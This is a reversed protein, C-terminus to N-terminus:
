GAPVVDTVRWGEPTQEVLGLGEFAQLWGLMPWRGWRRHFLAATACSTTSTSCRRARDPPAPPLRPRAWGASTAARPRAVQQGFDTDEGGYGVYDECFGGSGGVSAPAPRLVAVLVPRPDGGRVREGPRPHPGRRTRTTSTGRAPWTTAETSGPPLYTVPGSWVTGPAHPWPRPTRRSSTPAPWATSTSSSWCTPAGRRAGARAPTAPRPSRCAAPRRRPWSTPATAGRRWAGLDPDAMASWSTTTPGRRARALSAAPARLHDHRGHAITVVAVTTMGVGHRPRRGAACAARARAAFRDAARGDCWDAWAGGDLRAARELLEAALGDAPVRARRPGALPRGALVAATTGARRPAPAAPVVVAPRRAAAVDAVASQGAHTVVVDAAAAALRPDAVWTGPRRRARDLGLGPDPGRAARGVARDLAGGGRARCSAVVRAGAPRRTAAPSGPLPLRRRGVHVGTPSTEPLGPLWGDRRTRRALPRGARDLRAFGATRRTTARGPLM